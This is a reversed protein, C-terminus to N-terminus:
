FTGGGTMGYGYGLSGGGMVSGGYSIGGPMRTSFSNYGNGSNNFRLNDSDYMFANEYSRDNRARNFKDAYEGHEEDNAFLSYDMKKGDDSSFDALYENRARRVKAIAEAEADKKSMEVLNFMRRLHYGKGMKEFDESAKQCGYNTYRPYNCKKMMNNYYELYRTHHIKAQQILKKSYIEGDAIREKKKKLADRQIKLREEIKENQEQRALETTAWKKYIGIAGIERTKTSSDPDGYIYKKVGSWSQNDNTLEVGAVKYGDLKIKINAIRKKWGSNTGESAYQLEKALKTYYEALLTAERLKTGLFKDGLAKVSMEWLLRFNKDPWIQKFRKDIINKLEKNESETLKRDKTVLKNIKSIDPILVYKKLKELLDLLVTRDDDDVDKKEVIKALNVKLDNLIAEPTIKEELDSVLQESNGTSNKQVEKIKNKISSSKEDKCGDQCGSGSAAKSEDKESIKEENDSESESEFDPIHAVSLKPDIKVEKMTINKSSKKEADSASVPSNELFLLVFFSFLMLTTKIFVKSTVINRCYYYYNDNGLM